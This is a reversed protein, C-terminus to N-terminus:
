VVFCGQLVATVCMVWVSGVPSSNSDGAPLASKDPDFGTSDGVWRWIIHSFLWAMTSPRPHHESKHTDSPGWFSSRVGTHERLALGSCSCTNIWPAEDGYPWREGLRKSNLAAAWLHTTAHEKYVRLMKKGKAKCPKEPLRSIMKIPSYNINICCIHTLSLRLPDDRM